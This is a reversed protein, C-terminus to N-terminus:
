LVMDEVRVGWAPQAPDYLVQRVRPMFCDACSKADTTAVTFAACPREGSLAHDVAAIHNGWTLLDDVLLLAEDAPPPAVIEINRVLEEAPVEDGGEARSRTATRWAVCPRVVGGGGAALADALRSANWGAALTDRTTKSSPIPVLAVNRGTLGLVEFIRQRRANFIEAVYRRAQDASQIRHPAGGPHRPQNILQGQEQTKPNNDKVRYFLGRM